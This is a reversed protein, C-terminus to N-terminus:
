SFSFTEAESSIACPLFTILSIQAGRPATLKDGQPTARLLQPERPTRAVHPHAEEFGPKRDAKQRRYILVPGALPAHFITVRRARVSASAALSRVEEGMSGQSAQGEKEQGGFHEVDEPGPGRALSLRRQYTLGRRRPVALLHPRWPHSRERPSLSPLPCRMNTPESIHTARPCYVGLDKHPLARPLLGAACLGAAQSEIGSLSVWAYAGHGAGARALSLLSGGFARPACFFLSVRCFM